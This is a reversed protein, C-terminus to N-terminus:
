RRKKELESEDAAAPSPKRGALKFAIERHVPDVVVDFEPGVLTDIADLVTLPGLERQVRPVPHQLLEFVEVDWYLADELAYGTDTLLENVAQGVTDIDAPFEITVITQLPDRQADTPLAYVGTYRGTQVLAQAFSPRPLLSFLVAILCLLKLPM